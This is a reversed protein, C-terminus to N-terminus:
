PLADLAEFGTLLLSLQAVFAGVHMCVHWHPSSAACTGKLHQLMKSGQNSSPMSATSFVYTCMCFADLISWFCERHLRYHMWYVQLTDHDYSHM